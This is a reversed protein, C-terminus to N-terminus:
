ARLISATFSGPLLRKGKTLRQGQVSQVVFEVIKPNHKERRLSIISSFYAFLLQLEVYGKSKKVPLALAKRLFLYKGLCFFEVKVVGVQAFRERKQSACPKYFLGVRLLSFLLFFLFFPHLYNV